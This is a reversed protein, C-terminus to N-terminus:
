QDRATHSLNPFAESFDLDDLNCALHLPANLCADCIGCGDADMAQDAKGCCICAAAQGTAKACRRPLMIEAADDFLIDIAITKM